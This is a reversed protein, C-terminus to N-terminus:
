VDEDAPILLIKRAQGRGIGVKRGMVELLVPGWKNQIVKITQGPYVGLGELRCRLGKGGTFTLIKYVEGEKAESLTIAESHTINFSKKM